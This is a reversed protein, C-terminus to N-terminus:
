VAWVYFATFYKEFIVREDVCAFGNREYVARLKERDQACDLRLAPIGRERCSQKAYEILADAVGQGAASRVVALKHIFLSEGKAVETWIWPDHDTLAMCGAPAGDLTAIHFDPITYNRELRPWRVETEGWLPQDIQRLWTVADLLIAEIIPIDEQTARRISIM